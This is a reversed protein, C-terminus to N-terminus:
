RVLDQSDEFLERPDVKESATVIVTRTTSGCSAETRDIPTSDWPEISYGVSDLFVIAPANIETGTYDLPVMEGKITQTTVKDIRFRVNIYVDSNPHDRLLKLLEHRRHVLLREADPTLRDIEREVIVRDIKAQFKEVLYQIGLDTLANVFAGGAARVGARLRGAHLRPVIASPNLRRLASRVGSALEILALSRYPRALGPHNEDYSEMRFGSAFAREDIDRLADVAAGLAVRETPRHGSRNNIYEIEGDLNTNVEGCVRFLPAKGGLLTPHPMLTTHGGAAGSDILQQGIWAEGFEDVGYNYSGGRFEPKLRGDAGIALKLKVATPNTAWGERNTWTRRYVGDQDFFWNDIDFDSERGPSAPLAPWPKRQPDNPPDNAPSRVPPDNVVRGAAVLQGVKTNGATRQLTLLRTASLVDEARAARGTTVARATQEHSPAGDPETGTREDGM